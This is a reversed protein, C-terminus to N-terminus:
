SLYVAADGTLEVWINQLERLEVLYQMNNKLKHEPNNTFGILYSTTKTKYIIAYKM